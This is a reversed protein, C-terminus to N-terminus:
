YSTLPNKKLEVSSVFPWQCLSSKGYRIKVYDSHMTSNMIKITTLGFPMTCIKETSKLYNTVKSKRMAVKERISQSHSICELDMGAIQDGSKQLFAEELLILKHWNCCMSGKSDAILWSDWIAARNKILYVNKDLTPYRSAISAEGNEWLQNNSNVSVLIQAM